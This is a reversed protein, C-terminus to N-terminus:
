PRIRGLLPDPLGSVHPGVPNKPRYSADARYRELVSEHVGEMGNPTAGVPRMYRDRTIRYLGGLFDEYSDTAPGTYNRRGVSPIAESKFALGCASAKDLLWRLAVNSLAHSKYGGGVNSHAGPFWKQEMVQNPKERPDWMTAKYNERHEDTALAHYAHRVISSLETDHFEYFRRNFWDFSNVPIGLAGVTDWVGVFRIDVARSYRSRFMKASPTDAGDDRARYLQYAESIVEDRRRKNGVSHKVLGCNRLMGVLSRATYAGRSFGTIYIEDGDSYNDVLWSYGQRINKSLGVGFVGGSLKNYWRTGVGKDYWKLQARGEPTTRACAEFLLRVNTDKSGEIDANNDPTNWTGDFCILLNRSM